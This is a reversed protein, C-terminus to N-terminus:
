AEGRQADEDVSQGSDDLIGARRCCEKCDKGERYSDNEPDVEQTASGYMWNQCLSRGGDFIHWRRSNFPEGWRYTEDGHKVDNDSM